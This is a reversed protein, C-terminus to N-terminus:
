RLVNSAAGAALPAPHDKLRYVILAPHGSRNPVEWRRVQEPPFSSKVADDIVRGGWAEPIGVREVVYAGSRLRDSLERRKERALDEISGRGLEEQGILRVVEFDRRSSAFYALPMLAWYDHAVIPLPTAGAVAHSAAPGRGARARANDHRILRFAREFEDKGEPRFTWLSERLDATIPDFYNQKTALLFLCGLILAAVLPIRRTAGSTSGAPSPGPLLDGLLCAVALVTPLLFVIGYRHTDYVRLMRPGAVLHFISLSSALGAILALREWRRERVLRVTGIALLALFLARSFAGPLRFTTKAGPVYRLFLLREYGEYFRGWNLPPRRALYIRAMPHVLILGSVTAVVVGAVVTSVILRRRRRAPDGDCDGDSRRALQVLFIPLAVPILFIATPHVLMSALFTVLLGPGHGRLAFGIVLLGFLPLQSMELGVRSHYVACPLTALLIAATLATTRDLVRKGIAYTLVVALVGCLVAPLRLVWLSPRAVMLQFPGQLAVLFPNLVNRNMTRVEFAEGKLMRATQLGYYSEDADHWPFAGLSSVRFWLAVAFVFALGAFFLLRPRDNGTM